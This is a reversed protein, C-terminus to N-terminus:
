KRAGTATLLIDKIINNEGMIELGLSEYALSGKSYRDYYLCPKGHSPAESLKVNRAIKTKFVKKPFHKEVDALVQNALNVRTDFMTFLIGEIDLTSNYKRRVLKITEILQSLGELSYYEALMPIIVSDAATLANITVLSLSPPCDILIYDYHDKVTLLAMKLRNVRNDLKTLDIEAGAMSSTSPLIDVNKYASTIITEGIPATGIMVEYATTRISKKKIGFGSTTNGQSDIDVCLLRMDRIGLYAALNVCTTSKGVGGKQNVIAIIKSM